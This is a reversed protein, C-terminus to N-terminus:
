YVGYYKLMMYFVSFVAAGLIYAYLIHYVFMGLIYAIKENKAKLFSEPLDILKSMGVTCFCMFPIVLPLYYRGQPQFEWTYSYYVALFAPILAAVLMMLSIIIKDKKSRGEKGQVPRWVILWGLLCLIMLYKYTMYIHHSTPILMPGFMAIFSKWVLTYYDTGFIMTLVPVGQRQYTMTTLPNHEQLGTAAMSLQRANLALIDGDYLIGNRIFWWGAGLMAIVTVTIAKRWFHSPRQAIFVAVAVLLIGYCNYYSMACFIVGLSLNILSSRDYDTRGGRLLAYIIMAVSLLGMSDTNVYTHIFLNQPLFVVAITFLWVMRMDDFLERGILYTYVAATMGMAVCVCRAIYLNANASLNLFSLARLLYGQIIYTLIPQFAYSGGYGEIIVEQDWGVPLKGHNFIFRVVKYRDIEDPGDGLPQVFVFALMCALAVLLLLGLRAYTFKKNNEFKKM